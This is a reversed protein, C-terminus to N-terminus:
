AISVVSLIDGDCLLIHNSGKIKGKKRIYAIINRVPSKCMVNERCALNEPFSFFFM